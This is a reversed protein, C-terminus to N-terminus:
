RVAGVGNWLWSPHDRAVAAIMLAVTQQAEAETANPHRERYVAEAADRAQLDREGFRRVRRYAVAVERLVERDWTSLPLRTSHDVPMRDGKGTPPQLLLLRM